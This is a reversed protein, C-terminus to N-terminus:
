QSIINNKKNTKKKHVTVRIGRSRMQAAVIWTETELVSCGFVIKTSM